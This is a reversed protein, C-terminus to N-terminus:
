GNFVGVYKSGAALSVCEVTSMNPDNLVETFSPYGSSSGLCGNYEYSGIFPL